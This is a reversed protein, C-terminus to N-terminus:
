EGCRKCVRSKGASVAQEVTGAQINKSRSLSPCTERIHWVEGNKVWYVSDQTEDAADSESANNVASKSIAPETVKEDASVRTLPEEFYEKVPEASASETETVSATTDTQYLDVAQLLGPEYKYTESTIRLFPSGTDSCGCFLVSIMVLLIVASIARRRYNSTM